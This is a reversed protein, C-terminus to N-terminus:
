VGLAEGAESENLVPDELGVIFVDLDILVEDVVVNFEDLFELRNASSVSSLSFSKM